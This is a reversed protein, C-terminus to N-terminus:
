FLRPCGRVSVGAGVCSHCMTMMAVILWSCTSCSANRLAQQITPVVMQYWMAIKWTAIAADKGAEDGTCFFAVRYSLSGLTRILLDGGDGVVLSADFSAKTEEVIGQDQSGGDTDVLGFPDPREAEEHGEAQQHITHSCKAGARGVM